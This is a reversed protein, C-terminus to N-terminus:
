AHGSDSSLSKSDVGILRLARDYKKDNDPDFIISADADSTLWGNALIEQELQGASWGAYGLAILSREPGRDMAISRLMELTATLCVADSVKLTAESSFEPTHLVFGRGPEVPGGVHLTDLKLAEPIGSVEDETIIELQTFFDPISPAELKQNVIFGMAGEESHACLFIVARDFRSDGMGPMAILFKGHLSPFSTEKTM